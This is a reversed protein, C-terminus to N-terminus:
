LWLRFSRPLRALQVLGLPTAQNDCAFVDVAQEAVHFMGKM